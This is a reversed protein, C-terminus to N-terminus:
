EVGGEDTTTEPAPAAPAEQTPADNRPAQAREPRPGRAEPNRAAGGFQPQTGGRFSPGDNRNDRGGGRPGRDGGGGGRPGRDGRDGREPRGGDERRPPRDRRDPRPQATAMPREQQLLSDGGKHEIVDGKYIWVKVGIRGYTTHAHVQGYDIDARITHLPVRGEREWVSRAMEAGGLRGSVRVRIGKAGARQGRLVAQKLARRYSVRRNIQEAISEAVLYADLEPQKVEEINIKVKKGTMTELDKRMQDVATGGKGIVVGPKATHLTVEIQNASRQIEIKSLSAGTLRQGVTKRIRVDELLL